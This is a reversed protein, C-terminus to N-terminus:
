GDNDPQDPNLGRAQLFTLAWAHDQWSSIHMPTLGQNNSVDLKAGFTELLKFTDHIGHYSAFHVASYASQCMTTKNVWEKINARIKIKSDKETMGDVKQFHALATKRYKEVIEQLFIGSKAKVCVHIISKGDQNSDAMSPMALIMSTDVMNLYKSLEDYNHHVIFKLLSNFFTQEITTTADRTADPKSDQKKEDTALAPMKTETIRMAEELMMRQHSSQAKESKLIDDPEIAGEVFQSKLFNNFGNVNHSAKAPTTMRRYKTTM